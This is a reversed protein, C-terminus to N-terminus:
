TGSTQRTKHLTRTVTRTKKFHQTDANIKFLSTMQYENNTELEQSNKTSLNLQMQSLMKHANNDDAQQM